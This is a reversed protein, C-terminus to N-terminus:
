MKVSWIKKLLVVFSLPNGDLHIAEFGQNTTLFYYPYHKWYYSLLFSKFCRFYTM